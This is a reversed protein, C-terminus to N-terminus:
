TSYFAKYLLNVRMVHIYPSPMFLEPRLPLSGRGLVHSGVLSIAALGDKGEV